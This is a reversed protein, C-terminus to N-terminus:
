IEVGVLDLKRVRDYCLKRGEKLLNCVTTDRHGIKAGTEVLNKEDLYYHIMAAAVKTTTASLLLRVLENNELELLSKDESPSLVELFSDNHQQGYAHDFGTGEDCNTFFKPRMHRNKQKKGNYWLYERGEQKRIYDLMDLKARRMILPADIHKKKTRARQLWAENVLEDPQFRYEWYKALNTAYGQISPLVDVFNPM